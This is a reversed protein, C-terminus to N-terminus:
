STVKEVPKLVWNQNWLSINSAKHNSHDTSYPRSNTTQGHNVYDVQKM